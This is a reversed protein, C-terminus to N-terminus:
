HTRGPLDSRPMRLNSEPAQRVPMDAARLFTERAAPSGYSKRDARHQADGLALLVACHRHPDPQDVFAFARDARQYQEVASEWAFQAMSQEGARVAYEVARDGEGLPAAAGFHYALEAYYPAPNAAHLQELADGIARHLRMRRATSLGDYLTEQVLAHSFRYLGPADREEVLRAAVADDLADLLPEQPFASVSALLRLDFDRGIVSAIGLADLCAPSLRDLRRRIVDRVTEPVQIRWGGPGPSAPLDGDALLLRIVEAIFFPNGETERYVADVLAAPPERGAVEAIFRTVDDLPLGRLMIRRSNQERALLALTTALPHQQDIEVQRYTALLLLRATHVQQAIFQVLLLSPTDAWHLDDIIVLLPHEAAQQTLFAAVASFLSFRAQEPAREAPVADAPLDARLEPLIQAADISGTGFAARLAGAGM